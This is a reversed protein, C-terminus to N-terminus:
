NENKDLKAKIAHYVYQTNNFIYDFVEDEIGDVNVKTIFDDYVKEQEEQLQSVITKVLQLEQLNNMSYITYYLEKQISTAQERRDQIVEGRM